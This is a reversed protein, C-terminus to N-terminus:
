VLSEYQMFISVGYCGMSIIDMFIDVVACGRAYYSGGQSFSLLTAEWLKNVYCQFESGQTLFKLMM